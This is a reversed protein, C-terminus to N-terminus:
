LPSATQLRAQGRRRWPVAWRGAFWCLSLLAAARKHVDEPSPPEEETSAEEATVGPQEDKDDKM